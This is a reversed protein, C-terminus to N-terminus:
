RSRAVARAIAALVDRDTRARHLAAFRRMARGLADLKPEIADLRGRAHLERRLADCTYHVCRAPRHAIALTCGDAARFACGAHDHSRAPPALDRPRTGAQVLAALEDDDFVHATVGGCCAGGAHHGMPWPFGRACSGCSAVGDLEAAVDLKRARLEDAVAREEADAVGALEARVRERLAILEDARSAPQRLKVLLRDVAVFM